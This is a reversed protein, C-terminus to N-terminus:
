QRDGRRNAGAVAETVAEDGIWEASREIREILSFVPQMSESHWPTHVYHGYGLAAVHHQNILAHIDPNHRLGAEALSRTAPCHDASDARGMDLEHHVRAELRRWEAAPHQAARLMGFGRAFIWTARVKDKPIPALRWRFPVRSMVCDPTRTAFWVPLRGDLFARKEADAGSLPRNVRRLRQYWRLGDIAAPQDLLIRQRQVDLNEGGAAWVCVPWPAPNALQQVQRGDIDFRAVQRSASELDAFTWSEDLPTVGLARCADLNVHAITAGFGIPLGVLKRNFTFRQLLEPYFDGRDLVTSKKLFPDLDVLMDPLAFLGINYPTIDVINSNAYQESFRNADETRAKSRDAVFTGKGRVRLLYGDAALRALAARVTVRSVQHQEALENEKPLQSLPAYQGRDVAQRLAQEVRQYLLGAGPTEGVSAHRSTSPM